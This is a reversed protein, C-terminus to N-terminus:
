MFNISVTKKALSSNSVNNHLHTTVRIPLTEVTARWLRRGGVRSLKFERPWSMLGKTQGAKGMSCNMALITTSAGIVFQKRTLEPKPV